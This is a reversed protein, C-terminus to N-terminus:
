KLKLHKETLLFNVKHLITVLHYFAYPLIISSFINIKQPIKDM